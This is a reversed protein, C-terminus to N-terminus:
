DKGDSVEEGEVRRKLEGPDWRWSERTQFDEWSIAEGTGVTLLYAIRIQWELLRREGESLKM